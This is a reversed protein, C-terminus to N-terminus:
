HSESSWSEVEAFIPVLPDKKSNYPFLQTLSQVHIISIFSLDQVSFCSAPLHEMFLAPLMPLPLQKFSITFHQLCVKIVLHNWLGPAPSALVTHGQSAALEQLLSSSIQTPELRPKCPATEVTPADVLKLSQLSSPVWYAPPLCKLFMCKEHHLILLFSLLDGLRSLFVPAHLPQAM